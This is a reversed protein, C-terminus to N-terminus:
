FGPSPDGDSGSEIGRSPAPEDRPRCDHLFQMMETGDRGTYFRVMAENFEVARGAPVSIADWGHMMLEGNMM